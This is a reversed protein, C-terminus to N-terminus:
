KCGKALKSVQNIKIGQLKKSYEETLIGKEFLLYEDIDFTKTRYGFLMDMYEQVTYLYAPGHKKQSQM